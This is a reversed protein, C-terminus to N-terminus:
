HENNTKTNASTSHENVLDKITYSASDHLNTSPRMALLPRKTFKGQYVSFVSRPLIMTCDDSVEMISQHMIRFYQISVM